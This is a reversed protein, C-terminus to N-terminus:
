RAVQSATAWIGYTTTLNLAAGSTQFAFMELYDGVALVDEYTVTGGVEGAASGVLALVAGYGGNKLIGILRVGTANAAFHGSVTARWVGAGGNPITLRSPSGVVWLGGQDYSEATFPVGTIAANPISLAAARTVRVRKPKAVDEISDRIKTNWDAAPLNAGVVATPPTTYDPM